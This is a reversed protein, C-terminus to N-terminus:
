STRGSSGYACPGGHSGRLYSGSPRYPRARGGTERDRREARPATRVPGVTLRASTHGTPGTRDLAHVTSPTHEGYTGQGKWGPSRDAGRAQRADPARGNPGPRLWSLSLTAILGSKRPRSYGAGSAYSTVRPLIRSNASAI